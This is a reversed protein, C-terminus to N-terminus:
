EDHGSDLFEKARSFPRLYLLRQLIEQPEQGLKEREARVREILVRVYSGPPHDVLFM